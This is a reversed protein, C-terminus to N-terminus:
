KKNLKQLCKECIPIRFWNEDYVDGIAFDELCLGCDFHNEFAKAYRILTNTNIKM